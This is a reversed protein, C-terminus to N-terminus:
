VHDGVDPRPVRGHSSDEATPPELQSCRIAATRPGVLCLWGIPDPHDGQELRRPPLLAEEWVLEVDAVRTIHPASKLAVEYGALALIVSLAFVVCVVCTRRRNRIATM